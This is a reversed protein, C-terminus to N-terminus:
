IIYKSCAAIMADALTIRHSKQYINFYKGALKVIQDNIEVCPITELFLLTDIREKEKLCAYIESIQILTIFIKEEIDKILEEIKEKIDSRGRLIWIIVDSDILIM